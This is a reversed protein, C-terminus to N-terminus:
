PPIGVLYNEKYISPEPLLAAISKPCGSAELIYNLPYFAVRVTFFSKKQDTSTRAKATNFPVYM